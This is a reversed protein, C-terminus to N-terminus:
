QYYNISLSANTGGSRIAKFGSLASGCVAIAVNNQILTGVSSTPATGDDRYRIPQDEILIIAMRVAQNPITLAVASTSVALQQYGSPSLSTIAGPCVSQQAHAAPWPAGLAGVLLLCLLVRILKRM